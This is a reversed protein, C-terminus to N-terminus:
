RWQHRHVRRRHDLNEIDHEVVRALVRRRARRNADARRYGPRVDLKRHGVLPWANRFLRPLTHKLLEISNWPTLRVIRAPLADSEPQRYRAPEDLHLATVDPYLRRRRSRPRHHTHRQRDGLRETLCM